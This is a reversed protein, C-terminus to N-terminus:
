ALLADTVSWATGAAPEVNAPQDPPQEPLVSQVTVTPEGSVTVAIKLGPGGTAINSVLLILEFRRVALNVNAAVPVDDPKSHVSNRLPACASNVVQM